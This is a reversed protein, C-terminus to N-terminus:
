GRLCRSRVFASLKLKKAAANKAIAAYEDDTVRVIIVSTRNKKKAKSM